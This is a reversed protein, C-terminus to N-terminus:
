SLAPILSRRGEIFSAVIRNAMRLRESLPLETSGHLLMMCVSLVDGTGTSVVRQQVPCAPEVISEQRSFYGAGDAGMHLVVAGAGTELIRAIAAARDNTGAFECLERVNGHALDVLPLLDRVASKRQEIVAASARGWAPDWNLDLSTPVGLSRAQELLRRNGGFLMPESFWLDARYLHQAMSLASLDLNEYRLNENNPHCSLFHRQGSEYVLNVTTGTAVNPTRHLHCTVGVRELTQQLRRGLVDDGVQGVFHCDAGLAAATAASNAGGGGITERVGSISTEGDMFLHDGAAFPETKVDRNINGVICLRSGRFASEDIVSPM